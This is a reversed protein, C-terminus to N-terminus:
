PTEGIPSDKRKELEQRIRKVEEQLAVFAQLQMDFKLEINEQAELIATRELAGKRIATKLEANELALAQKEEQDKEARERWIARETELEAKWRDRELQWQHREEEWESKIRKLEDRFSVTSANLTEFATKLTQATLNGTEAKTKPQMLRAVMYGGVAAIMAALVTALATWYM